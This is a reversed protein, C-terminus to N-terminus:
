FQISHNCVTPRHSVPPRFSQPTFKLNWMVRIWTPIYQLSQILLISNDVITNSTVSRVVYETQPNLCYLTSACPVSNEVQLAWSNWQQSIKLITAFYTGTQWVLTGNYGQLEIGVRSQDSVISLSNAHTYHKELHLTIEEPPSTRHKYTFHKRVLKYQSWHSSM